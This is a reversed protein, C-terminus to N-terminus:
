IITKPRQLGNYTRGIPRELFGSNNVWASAGQRFKVIFFYTRWLFAFNASLVKM